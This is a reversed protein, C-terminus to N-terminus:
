WESLALVQTLVQYRSNWQCISNGHRLGDASPRGPEVYCANLYSLVELLDFMSVLECVQKHKHVSVRGCIQWQRALNGGVELITCVDETSVDYCRGPLKAKDLSLDEPDGFSNKEIGLTPELELTQCFRFDATLKGTRM